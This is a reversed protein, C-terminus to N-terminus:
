QTAYVTNGPPPLKSIGAISVHRFPKIKDCRESAHCLPDLIIQDEAEGDTFVVCLTKNNRTPVYDGVLSGAGRHGEEHLNPVEYELCNQKKCLSLSGHAGIVEIGRAIPNM